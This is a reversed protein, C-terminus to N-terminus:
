DDKLFKKLDSIMHHTHTRNIGIYKALTPAKMGQVFTLQYLKQGVTDLETYKTEIHQLKTEFEEEFEIDVEEFALHNFDQETESEFSEISSHTILNDRFSTKSWYIRKNMYNIIVSEIFKDTSEPTIDKCDSAYIYADSVLVYALDLDFYIPSRSINRRAINVFRDYNKTFVEEIM